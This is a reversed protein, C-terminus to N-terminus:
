MENIKPHFTCEMSLAEPEKVEKSNKTRLKHVGDMYLSNIKEQAEKQNIKKTTINPQFTCEKM